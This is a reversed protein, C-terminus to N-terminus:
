VKDIESLFKEFECDPVPVTNEPSSYSGADVDKKYGLYADTRLGQIRELEAHLNGYVKAHRPVHGQNVGLIDCSFLYQADCGDGSGVGRAARSNAALM